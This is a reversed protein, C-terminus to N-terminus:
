REGGDHREGAEARDAATTCPDHHWDGFPDDLDRWGNPDALEADTLLAHRLAALVATPDAGCVLVTMATHRDGTRYEWILDAIARREPDVYNVERSTMAALWKGANSVRLGGGASELWMACDPRSALWLRGRARVVGDLLVDVADHLRRPHFPRRAGFEVLRVIGDQELRPQGALLPGHPDVSRGRPSDEELHALALEVRQVGSTIRARPALRRLVALTVPEPHQVVMVDAFEAQGVTVQALTRGDALSEEGLSHSLWDADICTIVAAIRVDRAAPGDIYEPGVRVRIHNIAYCIPEPELWPALHVVIREVDARRHLQRLLILLDNRITCSVCGHALELASEATGLVGDRLSTTTRRVVHGDFRHEVVVTGARQMLVGVAADTDTQGAVLVVPTRM